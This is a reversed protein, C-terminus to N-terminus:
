VTGGGGGAAFTVLAGAAGTGAADLTAVTARGLDRVEDPVYGVVGDRKGIPTANTFPSSAGTGGAALPAGGAMPLDSAKFAFSAAVTDALAANGGNGAFGAAGPFDTSGGIAAGFGFGALELPEGLVGAADFGGADPPRCGL